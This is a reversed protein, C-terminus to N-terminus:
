FGHQVILSAVASLLGRVVVFLLEQKGCSSFTQVCCRLGLAAFIFSIFYIFKNLFFSRTHPLTSWVLSPM